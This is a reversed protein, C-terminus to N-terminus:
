LVDLRAGPEGQNPNPNPNPDPDPDPDPNPNPKPKPDPDPNPNPNTPNAKFATDIIDDPPPVLRIQPQTLNFPEPTTHVGSGGRGESLAKAAEAAAEKKAAEAAMNGELVVLLNQVQPVFVLVKGILQDDVWAPDYLKLWEPRLWKMLNEESFIFKLLVSMKFHEQGLLLAKFSSFGLEQLRLLALYSVVLYLTYDARQTEGGHKFYLSSLFVKLMKKYRVCGYLVQELFLKDDADAVKKLKIYEAAHSDVTTVIPNFTRVMEECGSILETPNM